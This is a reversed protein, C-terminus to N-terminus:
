YVFINCKKLLEFKNKFTIPNPPSVSFPSVNNGKEIKTKYFKM